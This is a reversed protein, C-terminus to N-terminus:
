RAKKQIRVFRTRVIRSISKQPSTLKKLGLYDRAKSVDVKIRDVDDKTFLAPLKSDIIETQPTVAGHSCDIIASKVIEALGMITIPTPYYVNVIHALSNGNKRCEGNLIKMSYVSYAKCIDNIDVYL